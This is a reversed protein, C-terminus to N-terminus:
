SVPCSSRVDIQLGILNININDFDVKVYYFGTATNIAPSPISTTTAVRVAGNVGAASQVTAMTVPNAFATAGVAFTKRLLSAKVKENANVDRYVMSMSCVQGAGSFPLAAYFSSPGEATLTGRDEIASGSGVACPCQRILAPAPIQLIAATAVAPFAIAAAFTALGCAIAALSKSPSTAPQVGRQGFAHEIM